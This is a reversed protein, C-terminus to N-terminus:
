QKMVKQRFSVTDGTLEVVYNGKPLYDLGNLNFTNVGVGGRTSYTKVVRGAQDIMRIRINESQQLKYSINIFSTFPSPAVRATLGSLDKRLVLARTYTSKGDVDVQKLRYYNTTSLPGNDTFQYANNIGGIGQVTGIKAYAQGNASREVEFHRNNIEDTTTWTLDAKDGDIRGKFSTLTVPLSSAFVTGGFESTSGSGTTNAYALATIRTGSTVAAPLTSIDVLFSFRNETRSGGTGTGEMTGDYNGTTLDTDTVGDLTADDQARFLFTRGEGFSRTFGGPLPDPNFGGDGIFFEIISNAVSFGSVLLNTGQIQMTVLVPANFLDNVGADVDGNDNITVGDQGLDIGLQGNGFISNRSIKNGALTGAAAVMSIGTDNNAIVNGEFEDSLADNDSGIINNSVSEAPLVSKLLIGSGTNGLDITLGADTGIINGSVKNNSSSGNYGFFDDTTIRIGGRGNSTIINPELNDSIGDGDTGIQLGLGNIVDIGYSGNGAANNLIDLGIRNGAIITNNSRGGALIGNTGSLAIMNGEVDDSTGDGDTGVICNSSEVTLLIGDQSNGLGAVATGNKDLGIINGAITSGQNHWFVIGFGALGSGTNGSVLNGENADDTGNGDTGVIVNTNPNGIGAGFNSIIGGQNGLLTATGTANTGIYNGWIHINSLNSGLTIGYAPCSYIALGAITVNSTGIALVDSGGAVSAGNIEIMITRTAIPGALSGPQSYGNIVLPNSSIAPLASLLNITFPGTGPINFVIDDAVGNGNAQTIADRLSGPGSDNTNTVTFTAAILQQSGTIFLLAVLLTSFAKYFYTM